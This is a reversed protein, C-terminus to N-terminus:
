RLSFFDHETPEEKWMLGHKSFGVRTYATVCDGIAAADGPLFSNRKPSFILKQGSRWCLHLACYKCLCHAVGSKAPRSNRESRLSLHTLLLSLSLSWAHTQIEDAKDFFICLKHARFALGLLPFISFNAGSQSIKRLRQSKEHRRCDSLSCWVSRVSFLHESHNIKPSSFVAYDYIVDPNKEMSTRRRCYTTKTLSFKRFYWLLICHSLGRLM